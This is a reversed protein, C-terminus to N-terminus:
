EVQNWLVNISIGVVCKERLKRPLIYTNIIGCALM